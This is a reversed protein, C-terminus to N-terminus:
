CKQTREGKAMHRVNFWIVVQWESLVEGSRFNYIYVLQQFKSLLVNVSTLNVIKPWKSHKESKPVHDAYLGCYGGRTFPKNKDNWIITSDFLIFIMLM